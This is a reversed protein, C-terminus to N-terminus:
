IYLLKAVRTNFKDKMEVSLLKSTEDIKFLNDNAPTVAIGKVDQCESLLEDIYKDVTIKEKGANDFDFVM